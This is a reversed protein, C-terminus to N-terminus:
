SAFTAIFGNAQEILSHHKIGVNACANDSFARVLM